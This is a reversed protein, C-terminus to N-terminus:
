VRIHKWCDTYNCSVKRGMTCRRVRKRKKPAILIDRQPAMVM